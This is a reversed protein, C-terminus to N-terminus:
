RKENLLEEVFYDNKSKYYSNDDLNKLVLSNAAVICYNGLKVDGLILSQPYITVDNLITPYRGNRQGLTVGQYIEFRDGIMARDGIVIGTPHHIRLNEGIVTNIGIEVGYKIYNRNKLMVALKICQKDRFFCQIRYNVCIRYSINVSYLKIINLLNIKKNSYAQFDKSFIGM